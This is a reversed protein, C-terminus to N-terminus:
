SSLPRRGEIRRNRRRRIEGRNTKTDELPPPPPPPHTTKADRQFRLDIRHNRSDPRKVDNSKTKRLITRETQLRTRLNRNRASPSENRINTRATSDDQITDVLTVEFVRIRRRMRLCTQNIPHSLGGNISLIKRPQRVPRATTSKQAVEREGTQFDRETQQVKENPVGDLPHFPVPDRVPKEVKILLTELIGSLIGTPPIMTITITVVNERLFRGRNSLERIQGVWEGNM